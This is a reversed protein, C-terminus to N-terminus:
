MWREHGCCGGSGASRQVVLVVIIGSNVGEFRVARRAFRSGQLAMPKSKKLAFYSARMRPLLDTGFRMFREDLPMEPFEVEVM